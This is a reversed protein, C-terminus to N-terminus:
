KMLTKSRKLHRTQREIDSFHVEVADQPTLYGDYYIEYCMQFEPMYKDIWSPTFPSDFPLDIEETILHQCETFFDQFNM